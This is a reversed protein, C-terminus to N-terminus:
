PSSVAQLLKCEAATIAHQDFCHEIADSHDGFDALKTSEIRTWQENRDLMSITVQDAEAAADPAPQILEIRKFVRKIRNEKPTLLVGSRAADGASDVAIESVDFHESIFLQDRGILSNILEGLLRGQRSALSTTLGDKVQYSDGDRNLVLTEEIPAVTKWIVGVKCHYFFTGSSRVATPLGALSKNQQFTGSFVCSQSPTIIPNNALVCTSVTFLSIM